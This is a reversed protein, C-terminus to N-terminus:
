MKDAGKSSIYTRTNNIILKLTFFLYLGAWLYNADFSLKDMQLNVIKLLSNYIFCPLEIIYDSLRIGMRIVFLTILGDILIFYLIISNEKKNHQKKFNRLKNYFLKRSKKYLNPERILDSLIWYGDSKYFPFFQYITSIFIAKSVFYLGENQVLLSSLLIFFSFINQFYVGGFNVIMRERRDLYWAGSVNAYMVPLFSIFGFGIESAKVNFKSCASAHGIEHFFFVFCVLVWSFDFPINNSFNTPTNIFYFYALISIILPIAVFMIHKNFMFSFLTAAKEMNKSSLLVKKFQFDAITSYEKQKNKKEKIKKIISDILDYDKNNIISEIANRKDNSIIYHKQGDIHLVSKEDNYKTFIIIESTNTM